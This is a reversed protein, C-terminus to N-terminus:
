LSVSFLLSLFCSFCLSKFLYERRLHFLEHVWRSRHLSSCYSLVFVFSSICVSFISINFFSSSSASSIVCLCVYWCLPFINHTHPFHPFSVRRSAIFLDRVTCSVVCSSEGTCLSLSGPPSLSVHVVLCSNARTLADVLSHTLLSTGLFSLSPRPSLFTFIFLFPPTSSSLPISLRHFVLLLLLFILYSPFVQPM